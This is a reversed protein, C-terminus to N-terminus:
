IYNRSGICEDKVYEAYAKIYVFVSTVFGATGEIGVYGLMGVDSPNVIDKNYHFGTYPDHSTVVYGKDSRWVWGSETLTGGEIDHFGLFDSWSEPTMITTDFGARTM